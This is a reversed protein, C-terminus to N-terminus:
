IACGGELGINERHRTDLSQGNPLYKAAARAEAKTKYYSGRYVVGDREIVAQFKWPGTRGTWNRRNQGHDSDRLNAWRNNTRDGDIHDILVAPHEGTMWLWALRHAYLVRDDITIRWYGLCADHCGAIDGANKTGRKVRWHFVGTEPDYSLIERVRAATINAKAM